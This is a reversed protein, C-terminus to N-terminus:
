GLSEAGTTIEINVPATGSGPGPELELELIRGAAPTREVAVEALSGAWRFNEALSDHDPPFWGAGFRLGTEDVPEEMPELPPPPLAEIRHAAESPAVCREERSEEVPGAEVPTSEQSPREEAPPVDGTASTEPEAAQSDEAPVAAAAAACEHPPRVPYTGGKRNVRLIHARCYALQEDPDADVPVERMVDHRADRGMAARGLAPSPRSASEM